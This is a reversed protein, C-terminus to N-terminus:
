AIIKIKNFFIRGYAQVTHSLDAEITITLKGLGFITRSTGFTVESYPGIPGVEGQALLDIRNFLGGKVEIKWDTYNITANGVNAICATILSNNATVNVIKLPTLTFIVPLSINGGNSIINITTRYDDPPLGTTIVTVNIYDIEGVSTGRNTSLTLWPCAEALMYSLVGTGANQIGIYTSANAGNPVYDFNVIDHDCLLHPEHYQVITFNVWFDSQSYSSNIHIPADYYGVPLGTTDLTVTINDHEGDSTGSLPYVDLFTYNEIFNYTLTCCGPGSWIEFTTTLVSANFIYGFDHSIPNFCLSGRSTQDQNTITHAVGISSCVAMLFFLSVLLTTLQHRTM